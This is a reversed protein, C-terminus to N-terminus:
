AAGRKKLSAAKTPAAARAAKLKALQDETVMYVGCVPKLGNARLYRAVYNPSIKLARAVDLSSHIKSM